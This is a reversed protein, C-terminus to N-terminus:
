SLFDEHTNKTQKKTKEDKKEIMKKKKPCKQFLGIDYRLKLKGFIFTLNQVQM